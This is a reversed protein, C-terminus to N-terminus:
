ALCLPYDSNYESVSMPLALSIFSTGSKPFRLVHPVYISSRTNDFQLTPLCALSPLPLRRLAVAHRTAFHRHLIALSLICLSM